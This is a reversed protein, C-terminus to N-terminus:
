AEIVLESKPFRSKPYKAMDDDAARFGVPLIVAAHLGKESLGLLEDFKAGDFGEMPCSDIEAVAAAAMVTGLAIYVQKTSWAENQEPTMRAIAGNIHGVMGDLASVEVGRSKAM